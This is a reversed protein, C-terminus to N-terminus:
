TGNTITGTKDLCLTDVRALMEICYLEQVLTRAKALNIVGVALAMSTLLFMGSPIMGIVAGIAHVIATDRDEVGVGIQRIIYLSALVVMFFSITRIIIRLSGLLESRPRVYKTAGKALKQVYNGSGVKEARVHCTGSVIYSGALLMDGKGKQIPVSEGTLLSENVEITGDMIVCDAPVQKGTSLILIDDLAVDDIAIDVKEGDRVVTTKVRSILSLKEITFKAKLEQIIGILTNAVVIIVFYTSSYAGVWVLLSIATVALINFWTFLNTFLIRGVSKTSGKKIFNIQAQRVRTRVQDSSLGEEVTPKFRTLVPINRPKKQKKSFYKQVRSFYRKYRTIERKNADTFVTNSFPANTPIYFFSRIRSWVSPKPQKIEEDAM